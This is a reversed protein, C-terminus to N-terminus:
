SAARYSELFSLDKVQSNKTGIALVRVGAGDSKEFYLRGTYAFEAELIHSKGGKGFVKRKVPVQAADQNLAQLVEEARLQLDSSLSALGEFSRDTLELNKYLAHIRKKLQAAEKERKKPKRLKKRLREVEENLALMKLEKDERLERQQELGAELEEMEELLSDVDHSLSDREKQIEDIRAHYAAEKSSVGDLLSQTHVLEENLSEIQKVRRAEEEEIIRSKRRVLANLVAASLIVWFLLVANTLWSNHRVEVDVSVELGENLLRYNEAAIEIYDLGAGAGEDFNSFSRNEFSEGYNMRPYLVRQDRTKVLVRTLVGIKYKFDNSFYKSLNREIEEELPYRGEYLAEQNQILVKRITHSEHKQFYKEIIDVSM